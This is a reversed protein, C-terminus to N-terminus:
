SKPKFIAVPMGDVQKEDLKEIGPASALQAIFAKAEEVSSQQDSPVAFLHLHPKQVEHSLSLLYVPSSGTGSALVNSKFARITLRYDAANAAAQIATVKAKLGEHLAPRPAVTALAAGPNLYPFSDRWTWKPVTTFNSAKLAVELSEPSGLWQGVFVEEPIGALDIRRSPVKTWGSQSWDALAYTMMKDPAVYHLEAKEYSMSIHVAGIVLFSAFSIALLGIPKYRASPLAAIVVSFLTVIIFAALVGAIVDSLWSVGLYLRSFSVAIVIIGCIAVVIAQSWRGLGRSLLTALVGFMAGTMLAHSSPFRFTQFNIVDAETLPAHRAYILYTIVMLLKAALIAIATASAARWARQAILWLVMIAATAFVVINDGLMTIRIFLEDGPASRVESFLNYLSLDFNGAAERLMRGSAIDGLMALAIIGLVIMLVFIVSRPNEPAIAGAFRRMPRSDRKRAWNAIRGQIAKRYPSIGGALIRLLWGAVGLVVLLVLLITLLRGSLDGALALAQGLLIGPLLHAVAWAIGSTVNILLFFVQGMGFMGAIGPVVAKVGPVFRGLAISKGGHVRFFDEGKAVLHPYASLPWLTRLRDGFIRGAWYSIQDGLICGSTTAIMVPWFELKGTGVLAGAGVLVATSPVVLGIILLAEGFAILFIVAIAWGPNAAFYDLYPQIQEMFEESNIKL